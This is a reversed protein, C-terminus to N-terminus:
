KKHLIVGRGGEFFDGEKKVLVGRFYTTTGLGGKQFNPLLNLSPCVIFSTQKLLKNRQVAVSQFERGASHKRQRHDLLCIKTKRKKLPAKM